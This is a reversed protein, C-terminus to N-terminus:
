YGNICYFSAGQSCDRTDNSESRLWGAAMSPSGVGGSRGAETWDGCTDTRHRGEETSGTWVSRAVPIAGGEETYRIAKSLDDDWFNGPDSAVTEGRVNVVRGAVPAHKRADVPSSFFGLASGQVSLIARWRGNERLGAAQAATGCIEDAAELPDGAGDAFDGPKPEATVFVVQPCTQGDGTCDPDACDGLGDGDDDMQNACKEGGGGGADMPDSGTDEVGGTDAMGTEEGSGAGTDAVGTEQLGTEAGRADGGAGGDADGTADGQGGGDESAAGTDQVARASQGLVCGGGWTAMLLSAALLKWRDVM